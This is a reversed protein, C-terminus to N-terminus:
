RICSWGFNQGGAILILVGEQYTGHNAQAIQVAGNSLTILDTVQRGNLPLELIRQNEIVEGVATSRTEVLTANAQVEVQESVQGVTLTPNIVPQTNVELVIGTQVYTRFGPLTAEFKYPGVALNQLVYTGTENETRRNPQHRHRNPDSYSGRRASRSRESRPSHRHDSDDDAGLRHRM